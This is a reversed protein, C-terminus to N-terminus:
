LLVERNDDYYQKHNEKISESNTESYKKKDLKIREHNDARFQKRHERIRDRNTENYQQKQEKILESKEARYKIQYKKLQEQNNSYYQSRLEKLHESNNAIYKNKVEKMNNIDLGFANYSNLKPKLEDIWHQERIRADLKTPCELQEIPSMTWNDWGGFERITQYVKLHHGKLSPNFCTNKHQNKRSTFNTTSGVYTFENEENCVIKYFCYMKAM